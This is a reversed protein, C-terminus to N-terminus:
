GLNETFFIIRCKQLLLQTTTLPELLCNHQNDITNIPPQGVHLAPNLYRLVQLMKVAHPGLNLICKFYVVTLDYIRHADMHNDNSM